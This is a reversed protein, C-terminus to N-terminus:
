PASSEVAPAIKACYAAVKANPVKTAGCVARDFDVEAGRRTEEADQLAKAADNAAVGAAAWDARAAFRAALLADHEPSGVAPAAPDNVAADAAEFAARADRDAQGAALLAQTAAARNAPDGALGQKLARPIGRVPDAAEAEGGIGVALVIGGAAIAAGALAGVLKVLKSNDM